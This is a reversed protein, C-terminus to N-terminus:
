KEFLADRERPANKRGPNQVKAESVGFRPTAIPIFDILGTGSDDSRHVFFGNHAFFETVETPLFQGHILELPRERSEICGVYWIHDCSYERRRQDFILQLLDELSAKAASVATGPSAHRIVGTRQPIEMRLDNESMGQATEILIYADIEVDHPVDAVGEGMGTGQKGKVM